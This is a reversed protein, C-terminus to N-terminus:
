ISLITFPPSVGASFTSAAELAQKIREEPSLDKTSFLSGLALEEGCGTADYDLVSESVQFDNQIQFLRGQYAVLFFGGKEENNNVRSYGGDKLCTRVAEVFEKVMYEFVDQEPKRYPPTFKFQLLQGMRFSSTFGMLFDGNKFVKKDSRIQLQYGAVGASDGGMYVKGQHKVGVICTM